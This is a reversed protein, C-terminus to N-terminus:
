RYVIRACRVPLGSENNLNDRGIIGYSQWPDYYQYDLFTKVNSNNDLYNVDMMYENNVEKWVFRPDSVLFCYAQKNYTPNTAFDISWPAGNKSLANPDDFGPMRNGPTTIVRYGSSSVATSSWLYAAYEASNPKDGGMITEAGGTQGNPRRYGAFGIKLLDYMDTANGRGSGYAGMSKAVAQWEFSTPMRYGRPCPNNDDEWNTLNKESDSNSWGCIKTLATTNGFYEGNNGSGNMSLTRMPSEDLPYTWMSMSPEKRNWKYYYGGYWAVWEAMTMLNGHQDLVSGDLATKPFRKRAGLNRDLFYIAAQRDATTSLDTVTVVLPDLEFYVVPIDRNEVIEGQTSYQKSVKLFGGNIGTKFDYAMGETRGNENVAYVQYTYAANATLGPFIISFSGTAADYSQAPVDVLADGRRGMRIGFSSLQADGDSVIVGYLEAQNYGIGHDDVIVTTEVEPPGAPGTDGELFSSSLVESHDNRAYAKFYYHKSSKLTRIYATFNFGTLKGATYIPEKAVVEFKQDPDSTLGYYIGCETGEDEGLDTVRGKVWANTVTIDVLQLIAVAPASVQHTKVTIDPTYQPRRENKAFIRLVYETNPKLKSLHITFPQDAEIAPEDAAPFLRVTDVETPASAEWYIVGYEFVRQGGGLDTVVGTLDFSKAMLNTIPEAVMGLTVYEIRETSTRFRIHKGYLTEGDKTTAYPRITYVGGAELGNVYANFEGDAEIKDAKFLIPGDASELEFGLGTIRTMNHAKGQALVEDYFIETVQYAELTDGSPFYIDTKVCSAAIFASTCLLLIKKYTNKM